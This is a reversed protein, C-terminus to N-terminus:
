RKAVGPTPQQLAAIEEDTLGLQRAKTLVVAREDARAQVRKDDETPPIVHVARLPVYWFGDLLKLEVERVPGDTGQVYQGRALRKATAEIEAVAVPVDHGRGETCDTNTYAVFVSRKEDM